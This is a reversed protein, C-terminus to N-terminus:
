FPKGNVVIIFSRINRRVWSSEVMELHPKSPIGFDRNAIRAALLEVAWYGVLKQNEQLGDFGSGELFPSIVAVGLEEPVRVQNRQLM